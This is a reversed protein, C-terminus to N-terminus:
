SALPSGMRPGCELGMACPHQRGARHRLGSQRFQSNELAEKGAGEEEWPSAEPGGETGQARFGWRYYLAFTAGPPFLLSLGKFGPGHRSERAGALNKKRNGSSLGGPAGAWPGTPLRM